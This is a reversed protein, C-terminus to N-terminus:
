TSSWTYRRRSPVVFVSSGPACRTTTLVPADARPAPGAAVAADTASSADDVASASVGRPM